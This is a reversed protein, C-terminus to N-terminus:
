QGSRGVAAKLEKIEEAQKAVKRQMDLSIAILQAMNENSVALGAQMGGTLTQMATALRSIEDATVRGDELISRVEREAAKQAAGQVEFRDLWDGLDVAMAEEAQRAMEGMAERAGAAIARQQAEAEAKVMELDAKAKEARVRSADVERQAEQAENSSRGLTSVAFMMNSIAMRERDLAETLAASATELAANVGAMEGAARRQVAGAGVLGPNEGAARRRADEERAEAEAADRLAREVRLRRQLAATGEDILERERTFIRELTNANAERVQEARERRMAQYREEMLKAAEQSKALAELEERTGRSITDFFTKIPSTASEFVAAAFQAGAGIEVGMERGADSLEKMQRAGELALSRIAMALSGVGAVRGTLAKRSEQEQRREEAARERHIRRIDEAQQKERSSRAEQIRALHAEREAEQAIAEAKQRRVELEELQSRLAAAANERRQSESRVSRAFDTGGHGAASLRELAGRVSEAAAEAAQLEYRLRETPTLDAERAAQEAMREVSRGAQDAARSVGRLLEYYRESKRTSNEVAVRNKNVQEAYDRIVVRSQDVAQTTAEAVERVKRVAEDAGAAQVETGFVLTYKFEKGDAM